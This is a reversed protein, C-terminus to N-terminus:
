RHGEVFNLGANILDRCLDDYEVELLDIFKGLVHTQMDKDKELLYDFGKFINAMQEFREAHMKLVYALSLEEKDERLENEADEREAAKLLSLFTSKIREAEAKNTIGATKCFDKLSKDLNNKAWERFDKDDVIAKVMKDITNNIKKM